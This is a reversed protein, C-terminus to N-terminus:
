GRLVEEIKAAADLLPQPDCGIVECIRRTTADDFPPIVGREALSLDVLAVGARKAILDQRGTGAYVHNGADYRAESILKGYHKMAKSRKLARDGEEKPVDGAMCGFLVREVGVLAEHWRLKARLDDRERRADDREREVSRLSRALAPAAAFLHAMEIEVADWDDPAYRVIRALCVDGMYVSPPDDGHPVAKMDENEPISAKKLLTSADSGDLTRMARGEAAQAARQLGDFEETTTTTM